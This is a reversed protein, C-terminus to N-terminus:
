SETEISDSDDVNELLSQSHDTDEPETLPKAVRNESKGKISIKNKANNAEATDGSSQDKQQKGTGLGTETCSASETTVATAMSSQSGESLANHRSKEQAFPRKESPSSSKAVLNRGGAAEKRLPGWIFNETPKYHLRAFRLLRRREKRSKITYVFYELASHLMNPLTEEVLAEHLLFRVLHIQFNEFKFEGLSKLIRTIRLYNHPSENLHQFREKWNSTRAVKGTNRDELKMGFFDLMIEYVQLYNNKAKKTKLFEKIEETTLEEAHWNLGPERLPFLWQIYTHNHELKDYDGNWKTLIEDIYVGDPKMAIEKTYFKLNAYTSFFKTERSKAPYGHRYMYLDRAAFFSRKPKFSTDAKDDNQEGFDAAEEASRSAEGEGASATMEQGGEPEQEQGEEPESDSQWTSDCEGVTVPEKVSWFQSNGM